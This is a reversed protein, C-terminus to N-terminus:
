RTSRKGVPKYRFRSPPEACSGQANRECPMRELGHLGHGGDLPKGIPDIVRGLLADGVPTDLVRGTREVRSGARIEEGEDLLVCGVQHRDLNFAFGRQNGAFRLLEDSRVNPLGTVNAIGRMVEWVLGTERIRLEVDQDAMTKGFVSSAGAIAQRVQSVVDDSEHRQQSPNM